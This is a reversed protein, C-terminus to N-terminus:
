LCVNRPSKGNCNEANLYSSQKGPNSGYFKRQLKERQENFAKRREQLTLNPPPVPTDDSKVFAVWEESPDALQSYNAM